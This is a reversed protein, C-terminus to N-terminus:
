DSHSSFYFRSWIVSESKSMRTNVVTPLHSLYCYQLLSSVNAKQVLTQSQNDLTLYYVFKTYLAGSTMSVCDCAGRLLFDHLLIVSVPALNPWEPDVATLAATFNVKYSQLMLNSPCKSSLPM